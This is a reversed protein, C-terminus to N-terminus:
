KVYWRNTGMVGIWHAHGCRVRILYPGGTPATAIGSWKNDSINLNDLDRWDVIIDSAVTHMIVQYQIVPPAEGGYEGHVPFAYLGKNLFLPTTHPLHSDTLTISKTGMLVPDYAGAGTTTIPM